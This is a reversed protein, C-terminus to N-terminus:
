IRAGNLEEGASTGWFSSPVLGEIDGVLRDVDILIEGALDDADLILGGEDFLDVSIVPRSSGGDTLDDLFTVDVSLRAVSPHERRFDEALTMVVDMFASAEDAEGTMIKKHEAM